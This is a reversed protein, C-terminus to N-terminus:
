SMHTNDVYLTGSTVQATASSVALLTLGIALFTRKGSM